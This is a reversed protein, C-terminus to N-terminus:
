SNARSSRVPFICFPALGLLLLLAADHEEEVVDTGLMQTMFLDGYRQPAMKLGQGNGDLAFEHGAVTSQHPSEIQQEGVHVICALQLTPQHRIQFGAVGWRLSEFGFHVALKAHVSVNQQGVVRRCRRDTGLAPVRFGGGLPRGLAFAHELLGIRRPFGRLWRRHRHVWAPGWCNRLTRRNSPTTGESTSMAAIM